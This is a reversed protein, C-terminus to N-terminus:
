LVPQPLLVGARIQGLIVAFRQDRAPFLHHMQVDETTRLLLITTGSSIILACGFYDIPCGSDKKSLM